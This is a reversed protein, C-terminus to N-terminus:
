AFIALNLARKYKDRDFKIQYENFKVFNLMTSKFFEKLFLHRYSQKKQCHLHENLKFHTQEKVSCKNGEKSYIYM